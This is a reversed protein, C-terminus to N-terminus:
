PLVRCRKQETFIQLYKRSINKIDFLRARKVGEQSLGARKKNDNLLSEIAQALHKEGPKTLIGAKGVVEPIPGFDSAIIPLGLMMAEVLVLGFGELKWRSPFVFIDFSSMIKYVDQRYGLFHVTNGLGYKEVLKELKKTDGAGVIVVKFKKIRKKLIAAAKILTDQGKETEIRSVMGITKTKKNRAAYMKSRVDSMKIGCPIIEIKADSIRTEPILHKKTNRSPVIVLSPIEKVLRYFLKPLYLNKQMVEALPSYELWIVPISLLKAIPSLVIKDSFGTILILDGGNKKFRRLILYDKLCIYPLFIIFKILGKLNSIIDMRVPIEWTTFNDKKVQKNFLSKAYTTFEVEVKEKRLQGALSLLFKEAGGLGGSDQGSILVKMPFIQIDAKKAVCVINTTEKRVSVPIFGLSKLTEKLSKVTYGYKHSQFESSGSVHGYIFEIMVGPDKKFQKIVQFINPVRIEIKGGKSLVQRCEKLLSKAGEKTFHELVDQLLIYDFGSKKFPFPKNLDFYIDAKVNKDFDVNVWGPRYDSGCGLNLRRM